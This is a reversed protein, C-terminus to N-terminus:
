LGSDKKDLELKRPSPATHYASNESHGKGILAQKEEEQSQKAQMPMVLGKWVAAVGMLRCWETDGWGRRAQGADTLCSCSWKLGRRSCQRLAVWQEWPWLGAEPKGHM